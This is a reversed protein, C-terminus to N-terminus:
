QITGPQVPNGEADLVTISSGLGDITRLALEIVKRDGVVLIAVNGPNITANAVRNVDAATVRSINTIYNNFYEDPLGYQVVDSLRAAIQAPTEFGRPYGLILSQKATNLEADTVPIEGRIGRLEKLFEVVSQKTVATQVGASATFPGAARRFDFATRAGYSYGKDERLNLNVRSMFQGGLMTNLVQLAFYDPTSRPVGVSGINIVSQAAGPRDVLYIQARDRAPADTIRSEPLQGAKWGGFAKELQGVVESMTVDGVVILSANNPVFYTTYFTKVDAPSMARVSAENGTQPHGYPHTPGYLISPYVVGAIQTANDRSQALQGLRQTKFRIVEADAFAPSLIADSYIDLAKGLHRKLTTLSVTTADWGATANLTAGISQLEAALDLASRRATGRDLLASTLSALGARDVPDAAAGSKVALNMTVVPLEHHEVLLVELGNSLTRRQLRPLTLRPPPGGAPLAAHQARQISDRRPDPKRPAQEATSDAGAGAAASMAGGTRAAPTVDFILRNSTLYKKAVRQVDAPTVRRYRALDQALWNPTGRMVAYNNLRDSKSGFGGVTQLGLITRAETVNYIRDLEEQTPPTTALKAIERDISAQASDMSQGRRPTVVVQFTGALESAGNAASVDQAIQRDYVLDKYLRSTRGGGLISSLYDLAPEDAHFEPVAHWVFYRRALAVRDEMSGRIEGNLTPQRVTLKPLAPGRPIKGFYKTAFRRVEAPNVDGAIVLSANNPTYYRRFFGKIDDMSAATLDELEGITLWNYPHDKPYLLKSIRARALGYPQNDYNQRKENKVVDRQNALKDESLADLLGGMRDAEMFIARELYNSPVIEYYNTRDPNTSGNLTGGIEQLP